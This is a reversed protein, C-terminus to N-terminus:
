CPSLKAQQCATDGNAPVNVITTDQTAPKDTPVLLQCMYCSVFLSVQHVHRAVHQSSSGLRSADKRVLQNLEPEGYAVHKPSNNHNTYISMTCTSYARAYVPCPPPLERKKTADCYDSRARAAKRSYTATRACLKRYWVPPPRGNTQSSTKTQHGSSQVFPCSNRRRHSSSFRVTVLQAESITTKGASPWVKRVNNANKDLNLTLYLMYTGHLATDCSCNKAWRNKPPVFFPHALNVDIKNRARTTHM